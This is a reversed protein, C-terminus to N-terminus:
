SCRENYFVEPPQKQPLLWRIKNLLWKHFYCEVITILFDHRLISLDLVGKLIKSTKEVCTLSKWLNIVIKVSLEMNSKRLSGLGVEAIINGILYSEKRSFCSGLINLFDYKALPLHLALSSATQLLLKCSFLQKRDYTTRHYM